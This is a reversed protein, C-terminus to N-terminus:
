KRVQDCRALSGCFIILKPFCNLCPALTKSIEEILRSSCVIVYKQKPNEDLIKKAEGVDSFFLFQNDYLTSFYNLEGYINQNADIFLLGDFYRLNQDMIKYFSNNYSIENSNGMFIYLHFIVLMAWQNKGTTIRLTTKKQEEAILVMM